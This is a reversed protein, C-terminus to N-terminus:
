YRYKPLHRVAEISSFYQFEKWSSDERYTYAPIGEKQGEIAVSVRKELEIMQRLQKPLGVYLYDRDLHDLVQKGSGSIGMRYVQQEFLRHPMWLKGDRDPFENGKSVTRCIPVVTMRGDYESSRSPKLDKVIERLPLVILARGYKSSPNANFKVGAIQELLAQLKDWRVCLSFELPMHTILSDHAGVADDSLFAAIEEPSLFDVTMDTEPRENGGGDRDILPFYFHYFDAHGGANCNFWATGDDVRKLYERPIEYLNAINNKDVEICINGTHRAMPSDDKDVLAKYDTKVEHHQKTSETNTVIWDRNKNNGSVAEWTQTDYCPRDGIPTVPKLNRFDIGRSQQMVIHEGYRGRNNSQFFTETL